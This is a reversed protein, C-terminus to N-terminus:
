RKGGFMSGLVGRLIQRRRSKRQLNEMDRVLQRNHELFKARSEYGGRVLGQEIFMQRAALPDITSLRLRRRDGIRLGFLTANEFVM